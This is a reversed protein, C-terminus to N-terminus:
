LWQLALSGECNLFQHVHERRVVKQLRRLAECGHDVGGDRHVIRLPEGDVAAHEDPRLIACRKSRVDNARFAEFTVGQTYRRIKGCSELIDELYFLWNRSM